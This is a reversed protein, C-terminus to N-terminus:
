VNARNEVYDNLACNVLQFLDDIIKEFSAEDYKYLHEYLSMGSIPDIVTGMYFKPNTNLYWNGDRDKEFKPITDTM